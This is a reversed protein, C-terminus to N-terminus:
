PAPPESSSRGIRLCEPDDVVDGSAKAIDDIVWVAPMRARVRVPIEMGATLGLWYMPPCSAEVVFQYGNFSYSVTVQYIPGIPTIRKGIVKGVVAEGDLYAAKRHTRYVRVYGEFAALAVLSSLLVFSPGGRFDVIWMCYISIIGLIGFAMRALLMTSNTYPYYLHDPVSQM